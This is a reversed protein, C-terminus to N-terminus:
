QQVCTPTSHGCSSALASTSLPTTSSLRMASSVLWTHTNTHAAATVSARRQQCSLLSTAATAPLDRKGSPAHVDKRRDMWESGATSHTQEQAAQHTCYPMSLHSPHLLCEPGTRRPVTLSVLLQVVASYPEADCVHKGTKCTTEQPAPTIPTTQGLQQALQCLQRAQAPHADQVRVRAVKIVFEHSLNRAVGLHAPVAHAALRPLQHEPPMQVGAHGAHQTHAHQCSTETCVHVLGAADSRLRAATHVATICTHLYM